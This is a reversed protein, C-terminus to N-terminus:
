TQATQKTSALSASQCAPLEPHGLHRLSMFDLLESALKGALRGTCPPCIPVQWLQVAGDYM